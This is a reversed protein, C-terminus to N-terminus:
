PAVGECAVCQDLTVRGDDRRSRGAACTATVAGNCGCGSREEPTLERRHPCAKARALAAKAERARSPGQTARPAIAPAPPDSEWRVRHPFAEPWGLCAGMIAEFSWPNLPPDTWTRGDPSDAIEGLLTAWFARPRARVADRPIAWMAGYGFHLPLPLPCAFVHPWAAPNFWGGSAAGGITADGYRVAHGFHEEVRDHATVDAPPFTAAYHPTLSTPAEYDHQLRELFDPAHGFPDGQATFTLDPLADYRTALHHLWAEGERGVNPRDIVVVHPGPSAIPAGKNYLWVRFPVRATWRVDERYRCVVLERSLRGLRWPFAPPPDPAPPADRPPRHEGPQAAIKPGWTAPDAAVRSCFARHRRSACAGPTPHPCGACPAWANGHIDRDHTM